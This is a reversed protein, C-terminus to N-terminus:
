PPLTPVDEPPARGCRVGAGTIVVLRNRTRGPQSRALPPRARTLWPRTTTGVAITREHDCRVFDELLRYDAEPFEGDVPPVTSLAARLLGREAAWLRGAARRPVARLAAM